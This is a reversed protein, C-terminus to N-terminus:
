FFLLFFAAIGECASSGCRIGHVSLDAWANELCLVTRADEWNEPAAWLADHRHFLGAAQRQWPLQLAAHDASVGERAEFFFLLCLKTLRFLFGQM